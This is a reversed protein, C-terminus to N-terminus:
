LAFLAQTNATTKAIIEDLSVDRVSAQHKAVEVVYVPENIKGRFPKPTLFPADTELLMKELPLAAFMEQQGADKTFTSIGNVGIYLDRKLAEELTEMTDTFCHLVGRIQQGASRFNDFVPWFDAYAERVHFSVPLDYEVALQLQEELAKIQADRPSNEYFYDLGIEGIGVLKEPKQQLLESLGMNRKENKMNGMKYEKKGAEHPHVGVVAWVGEHSAAFEVAEKSDAETTGVVLMQTDAEIARQYVEERGEPFFKSDHVHCHSDILM